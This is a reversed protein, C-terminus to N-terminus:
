EYNWEIMKQNDKGSVDVRLALTGDPFNTPCVVKDDLLIM